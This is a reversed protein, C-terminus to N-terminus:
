DHLQHFKGAKHFLDMIGFLKGIPLIVFYFQKNQVSELVVLIVQLDLGIIKHPVLQEEEWEVIHSEM